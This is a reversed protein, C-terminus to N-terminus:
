SIIDLFSFKGPNEDGKQEELKTYDISRSDVRVPTGTKMSELPYTGFGSIDDVWVSVFSDKLITAFEWESLGRMDRFTIWRFQPYKLYFTKIIKMTDRQDRTHVSVIPKAPVSKKEFVNSITPEIVDFSVNKMIKELYNKQEESTTICKLFGYQSWSSGPTLTEMIYDYSQSLVIKGCPFKSVQEMVHGYLEPIIMFDEPSIELNQGEIARHPLSMYKEDLWSGVGKYDNQEHMIIANYGSEFLHYAMEYIVRISAKANGKTDQVLFYIRSKKEKLNSISQELKTILETNM